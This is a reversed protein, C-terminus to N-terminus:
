RQEAYKLLKRAVYGAVLGIAISMLVNYAMTWYAWKAIAPGTNMQLLYVALFLFPYGLGDNAGSFNL